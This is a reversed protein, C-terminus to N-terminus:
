TKSCAVISKNANKLRRYVVQNHWYGRIDGDASRRFNKLLNAGFELLWKVRLVFPIDGINM